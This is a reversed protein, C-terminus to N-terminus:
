LHHAIILLSRTFVTVMRLSECKNLSNMRKLDYTWSPAVACGARAFSRVMESCLHGGADIVVAVKKQLNFLQNLFSKM